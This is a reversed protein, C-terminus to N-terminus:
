CPAMVCWRCSLIVPVIHHSEKWLRMSHQFVKGKGQCRWEPFFPAPPWTYM